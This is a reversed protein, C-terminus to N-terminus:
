NNSYISQMKIKMAKQLAINHFYLKSIIKYKLFTCFYNCINKMWEYHLIEYLQLVTILRLLVLLM